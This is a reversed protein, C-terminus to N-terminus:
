KIKGFIIELIESRVKNDDYTGYLNFTVQNQAQSKQEDSFLFKRVLCGCIEEIEARKQSSFNSLNKELFPFQNEATKLETSSIM